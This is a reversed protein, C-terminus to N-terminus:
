EDGLPELQKILDLVFDFYFDFEKLTVGPKVTAAVANYSTRHFERYNDVHGLLALRVRKSAFVQALLERHQRTTLDVERESMLTHIDIFDRARSSGARDRKIVPGYEPMQQCIARPKECAIMEPTYAFVAFGDLDFQTKGTTYEHKSIDISFKPGQGLQVASKRLAEVNDKLEEYRDLGILKFEVGYGGWFDELDATLGPPRDELKVDFVHYGEPRFTDRLAKEIRGHLTLREEPTFDGDLSLDIDVSARASVRHILDLANGGKLVLREMLVDDSFMAIIVLKKIKERRELEEIASPSKKKAMFIAKEIDRLGRCDMDVVVFSARTSEEWCCVRDVAVM